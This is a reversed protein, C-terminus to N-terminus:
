QIIQSYNPTLSSISTTCQIEPHSLISKLKNHFDEINDFIPNYNYFDKTYLLSPQKLCLMLKQNSVCEYSVGSVQYKFSPPYALLIIDAIMFLTQYQQISLYRDIFRINNTAQICNPKERLLILIHQDQLYKNIDKDELLAKVFQIDPKPSPHFIIKKYDYIYSPINEEKNQTFPQVCGHSVIFINKIGEKLFPAAMYENFVIFSNYKALRKMAYKKIKNEFDAANRHCIIFMGKTLPLISLSIEDLSSIITADYQKMGIRIKIYSLAILFLLRNFIPHHERKRMWAPLILRYDEKPYPLVDATKDFVILKVDYGNTKLADIHIRNFNVHGKQYDYEVFLIKKMNGKKHMM